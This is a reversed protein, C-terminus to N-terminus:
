RMRQLLTKHRRATTESVVNTPQPPPLKELELEPEPEPEPFGGPVVGEKVEIVMVGANVVRFM